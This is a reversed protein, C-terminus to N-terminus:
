VKTHHDGRRDADLQAGPGSACRLLLL